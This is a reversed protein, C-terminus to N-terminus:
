ADYNDFLELVINCSFVSPERSTDCSHTTTAVVVHTASGPGANYSNAHSFYVPLHFSPSIRPQSLLVQVRTPSDPLVQSARRARPAM